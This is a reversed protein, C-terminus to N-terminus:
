RGLLGGLLDNLLGELSPPLDVGGLAKEVLRVLLMFLLKKTLNGGLIIAQPREPDLSELAIALTEANIDLQGLIAETDPEGLILKQLYGQVIWGHLGLKAKDIAETKRFVGVMYAISERPFEAPYATSM